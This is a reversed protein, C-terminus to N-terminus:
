LEVTVEEVTVESIGPPPGDRFTKAAAASSVCLKDGARGIRPFV